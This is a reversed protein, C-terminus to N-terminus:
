TMIGTSRLTNKLAELDAALNTFNDVVNKSDVTDSGTIDAMSPTAASAPQAIPTAGWFGLKQTNATGIKTGTTSALQVNLGDAIILGGGSITVPDQFTFGAGSGVANYIVGGTSTVETTYYNSSNYEIRLQESGLIVHLKQKFQFEPAAGAADFVQVGNATPKWTGYESNSFTAGFAPNSTDRAEVRAATPNASSGVLVLPAQLSGALVSPNVSDSKIAWKNTGKGDISSDIFIGYFNTIGAGSGSAEIRVGGFRTHTGSGTFLILRCGFADDVTGGSFITGRLATVDPAAGGASAMGNFGAIFNSVNKGSSSSGQGFGGEVHEANENANALGEVGQIAITGNSSGINDSFFEGGTVVPFDVSSGSYRARGRIASTQFFSNNGGRNISVWIGFYSYGLDGTYPTTDAVQLLSENKDIGSSFVASADGVRLQGQNGFAEYYRFRANDEAVAGTPGAFLVSQPTAGSIGSGISLGPQNVVVLSPDFALIDGPQPNTINFPPVAYVQNKGLVPRELAATVPARFGTERDLEISFPLRARAERVQGGELEVDLKLPTTLMAAVAGGATTYDAVVAGNKRLLLRAGERAFTFITATLASGSGTSHFAGDIWVEWSFDSYVHIAFPINAPDHGSPSHWNLGVTATSGQQVRFEFDGDNTTPLAEVSRLGSNVGSIFTVNGTAPDYSVGSVDAAHIFPGRYPFLEGAVQLTAKVTDGNQYIAVGPYLPFLQDVAPFTYVLTHVRDPGNYAHKWIEVVGFSGVAPAKAIRIEWEEGVAYAGINVDFLSGGTTYHAQATGDAKLVVAFLFDNPHSVTGTAGTRTMAFGFARQTNNHDILFLVSSQVTNTFVAWNLIAGANSWGTAATKTLTDDTGVSVGAYEAWSVQPPTIYTLAAFTTSRVGTRSIAYVRRAVAATRVTETFELTRLFPKIVIGNEDTVQYGDVNPSPSPEWKWVVVAGDYIAQLNSPGAPVGMNGTLLLTRLPHLDFGSSVGGSSETIVRIYYFGKPVNTITFPAEGTAPDPQIILSIDVWPAFAYIRIEGTGNDTFPAPASTDPDILQVHGGGSDHLTYEKDANLGAPLVGGPAVAAVAVSMGALALIGSGTPYTFDSSAFAPTVTFGSGVLQKWWVRGRQGPQSTFTALGEITSIATGDPLLLEGESVTLDLLPPPPMFEASINTHSLPTVAGHATDSYFDSTIIKLIFTRSEVDDGVSTGERMVMCLAPASETYGSEPAILHVFDGKAVAMSDLFGKVTFGFPLDTTLRAITEGIREMQSQQMVGYQAIETQNLGYLARHAARPIFVFKRTLLPEDADRYSFRYYNPATSPDNNQVLVNEVNTPMSANRDANFTFVPTRDPGNLIVIEGDIDQWSTGPAMAIETELVSSVPIKNLIILGGRFRPVQRPATATGAPRILINTATMGIAGLRIHAYLDGTPQPDLTINALSLPISNKYAKFVGFEYAIKVKDSPNADGIVYTTTGNTYHIQRDSSIILGYHPVSLGAADTNFVVACDDSGGQYELEISCNPNTFPSTVARGTGAGTRTLTNTVPDYTDGNLSAFVPPAPVDNGGAWGIVTDCRDRWTIWSDANLRSFPRAADNIISDAAVLANNQGSVPDGTFELVGGVKHFDRVMKGDMVVELRTPEDNGNSLEEPLLVELWSLGPFNFNLGAFVLEPKGQVTDFLGVDAKYVFLKTGAGIQTNDLDLAAGGPATAVQFHTGSVNVAYYKTHQLLPGPLTAVPDKGRKQFAIPNDNVFTHTPATITNATDDIASILRYTPPTPITGPHFKWNRAGNADFEPLDFGAYMLKVIGRNGTDGIFRAGASLITILQTRSGAGGYEYAVLRGATAGLWYVRPAVPNDTDDVGRLLFRGPM